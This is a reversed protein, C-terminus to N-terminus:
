RLEINKITGTILIEDSLLKSVVLDDGQIYVKGGDYTIIVKYSDFHDIDVFNVVNVSNKYVKLEFSEELLYNRFQHIIGM